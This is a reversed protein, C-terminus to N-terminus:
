RSRASSPPPSRRWRSRAWPWPSPPASSAASSSCAPAWRRPACRAPCPSAAPSCRPRCRSPWRSRARSRRRRCGASTTRTATRSWSAPSCRGSALAWPVGKATKARHEISALVAGVACLALALGFLPTVRQGLAVFVVAAYAGQLANLACILGLDGGHLGRLLCFFAGFYAVGAVAAMGAARWQAGGSPLGDVLLAIPVIIIAGALLVWVVQTLARAARTVRQSFLDSTAYSFASGLGVLITLVLPLRCSRRPAAACAARAAAGRHPRQPGGGALLGGPRCVLSDAYRRQALDAHKEVITDALRDLAEYDAARPLGKVMVPELFEVKLRGLLEQITEVTKGAWGYSGIVTAYKARPRLANALFAASAALPHPGTLVTPTGLVITGAHVLSTALDGADLTTLDFREVTVGRETLAMTLYDVM